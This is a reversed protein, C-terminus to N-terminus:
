LLYLYRASCALFNVPQKFSLFWHLSILLRIQGM